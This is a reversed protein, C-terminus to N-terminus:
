QNQKGNMNDQQGKLYGINHISKSLTQIIRDIIISLNNNPQSYSINYNTTVNRDYQKDDYTM